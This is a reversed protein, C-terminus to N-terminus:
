TKEESNNGNPITLVPPIRVKRIETNSWPDGNVGDRHRGSTATSAPFGAFDYDRNVAGM